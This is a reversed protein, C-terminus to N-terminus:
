LRRLLCIDVDINNNYYFTPHTSKKGLSYVSAKRETTYIIYLLTTHSEGQPTIQSLIPM